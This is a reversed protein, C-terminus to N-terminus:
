NGVSSTLQELRPWTIMAYTWGIVIARIQGPWAPGEFFFRTSIGFSYVLLLPKEQPGTTLFRGALAPGPTRDRIPFIGCAVPCSLEHAVVGSSLIDLAQAGSCSFGSCHSAQAGCGSFLRCLLLSGACSLVIFILCPIVFILLTWGLYGSASRSPLM